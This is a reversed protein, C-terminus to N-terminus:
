MPSGSQLPHQKRLEVSCFRRHGCIRSALRINQWDKGIAIALQDDPVIVLAKKNEHSKIKVSLVKAPSLANVITTSIDDLEIDQANAYICFIFLVILFSFINKKM